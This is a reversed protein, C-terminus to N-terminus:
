LKVLVYGNDKLDVPIEFTFDGNIDVEAGKDYLLCVSKQVSFTWDLWDIEIIVDKM